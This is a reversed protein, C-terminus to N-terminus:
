KQEEEKLLDEFDIFRIQYHEATAKPVHTECNYGLQQGTLSKVSYVGEKTCPPQCPATCIM